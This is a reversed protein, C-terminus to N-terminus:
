MVAARQQLFFNETRRNDEKQLSAIKGEADMRNLNDTRVFAEQMVRQLDQNSGNQKERIAERSEVAKEYDNYAIRGQRYLMEIQQGTYGALSTIKQQKEKTSDKEATSEEAAAAADERANVRGEPTEEFVPKTMEPMGSVRGASERERVANVSFEETERRTDGNQEEVRNVSVVAGERSENLAETGRDSIALEVGSQRQANEQERLSTKDGEGVPASVEPSTRSVQMANASVASSGNAQTYTMFPVISM